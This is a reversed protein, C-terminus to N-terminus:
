PKSKEISFMVRVMRALSELWPKPRIDFTKELLSCDLVSNAPSMTPTLYEAASVPEVREVRLSTYQRAQRPFEVAFGHWDTIGKGCDHCTGWEIEGLDRLKSAILLIAEALDAAYTPCGSQDAVVRVSENERGLRLVTQVFNHGHVGYVWSTRVIIYEQLLNRIEV